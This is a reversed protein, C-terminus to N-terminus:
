IKEVLLLSNAVDCQVPFMTVNHPCDSCYSTYLLLPMLIHETCGVHTVTAIIKNNSICLLSIIYKSCLKTIKLSQSWNRKVHLYRQQDSPFTKNCWLHKHKVNLLTHLHTHTQAIQTELLICLMAAFLQKMEAQHLANSLFVCVTHLILTSWPTKLLFTVAGLWSLQVFKMKFTCVPDTTSQFHQLTQINQFSVLL